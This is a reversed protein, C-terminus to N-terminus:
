DPQFDVFEIKVSCKPCIDNKETWELLEDKHFIHGCPEIQLSPEKFLIHKQCLDCFHILEGCHMCVIKGKGLIKVEKGCHYCLTKELAKQRKRKRSYSFGKIAKIIMIIGMPPIILYIIGVVSYLKYNDILECKRSCYLKNKDTRLFPRIELVVDKSNCVRCRVVM